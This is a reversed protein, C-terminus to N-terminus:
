SFVFFFSMKAVMKLPRQETIISLSKIQNKLHRPILIGTAIMLDLKASSTIVRPELLFFVYM